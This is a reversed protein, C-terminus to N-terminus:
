ECIGGIGIVASASMAQIVCPPADIRTHPLSCPLVDHACTACYLHQARVLDLVQAQLPALPAVHISPNLHEHNSPAIMPLPRHRKLAFDM